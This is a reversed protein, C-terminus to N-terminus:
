VDKTPEGQRTVGVTWVVEEKAIGPNTKAFQQGAAYCVTSLTRPV